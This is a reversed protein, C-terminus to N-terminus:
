LKTLGERVAYKTLAAVSHLNLKRMINRRHVEVTATKIGLQEAICPSRMGETILKLVERERAGLRQKPALKASRRAARVLSLQSAADLPVGSASGALKRISQALAKNGAREEAGALQAMVLKVSRANIEMERRLGDTVSQLQHVRTQLSRANRGLEEILAQLPEDFDPAPAPDGAGSSHPRQVCETPKGASDHGSRTPKSPPANRLV